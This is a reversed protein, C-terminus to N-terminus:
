LRVVTHSHTLRLILGTNDVCEHVAYVNLVPKDAIINYVHLVVPSTARESPRQEVYLHRATLKILM